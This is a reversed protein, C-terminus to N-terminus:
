AIGAEEDEECHEGGAHGVLAGLGGEVGGQVLHGLVTEGGFFDLASAALEGRLAGEFAVAAGGDGGLEVLGDGEAVPGVEDGLGRSEVGDRRGLELAHGM